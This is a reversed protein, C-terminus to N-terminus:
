GPLRYGDHGNADSANPDGARSASTNNRASLATVSCCISSPPDEQARKISKREHFLLGADYHGKTAIETNLGDKTQQESQGSEASLSVGQAELDRKGGHQM